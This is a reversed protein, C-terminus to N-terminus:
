PNASKMGGGPGGNKNRGPSGEGMESPGGEPMEGPGDQGTKDNPIESPTDGEGMGAPAGGQFMDQRNSSSVEPMTPIEFFEESQSEEAASVGEGSSAKVNTYVVTGNAYVIKTEAEISGNVQSDESVALLTLASDGTVNWVSGNTLVLATDHLDTVYTDPNLGYWCCNEDDKYAEWKTNWADYDSCTVMGTISSGDTVITMDRQYDDHVFSGEIDSNTISVYVGNGVDQKLYRSMSDSNLSSLIAVSNASDITVDDLTINASTSKVLIAAGTVYDVYAGTADSYKKAYDTGAKITYTEGNVDSTYDYGDENIEDDTVLDTHSLSLVASYDSNGEGMMDPSHLQFDNRGAIVLSREDSEAEEGSLESLADNGDETVTSKADNTSGMTISGNNSIIAGEEASILSTGYLYDRCGSDAYIGYGGNQAVGETNYAVLELGSGVASDTSLAAWGDALCLSNYYFTHTQGVSFNSRSDGSILLGANSFPEEVASTNGDAGADGGAAIVSDNVVMAATDEAAITYRGAGNVLIDSNEIRTTGSSAYVACGADESGEVASGVNLTISSDKILVDSDSSSVGTFSYDSSTINAGSIVTTQGDTSILDETIGSEWAADCLTVEGSSVTVAGTQNLSNGTSANAAEAEAGVSLEKEETTSEHASVNFAQMGMSCATLVSLVFVAKKWHNM